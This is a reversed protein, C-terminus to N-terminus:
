LGLDRLFEPKYADLIVYSPDPVAVEPADDPVPDGDAPDEWEQEDGNWRAISYEASLDDEAVLAQVTREAEEADSLTATYLIMRDGDRTITVRSGLREQADDDLDLSRLKEWLSLPDDDSGLEVLVRFEDDAM